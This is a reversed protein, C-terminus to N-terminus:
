VVLNSMNQYKNPQYYFYKSRYKLLWKLIIQPEFQLNKLFWQAESFVFMIRIFFTHIWDKKERRKPLQNNTVTDWYLKRYCSFRRWRPGHLYSHQSCPPHSSILYTLFVPLFLTHWFSFSGLNKGKDSSKHTKPVTQTINRRKAGNKSLIERKLSFNRFVLSFIPSSILFKQSPPPSFYSNQALINLPPQSYIFPMWFFFVFERMLYIVTYLTMVNKIITLFDLIIIMLFIITYLPFM